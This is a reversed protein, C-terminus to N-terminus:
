DYKAYLYAIANDEDFTHLSRIEDETIPSGPTFNHPEETLAGNNDTWCTVPAHSGWFVGDDPWRCAEMPGDDTFVYERIVGSYNEANYYVAQYTRSDVSM